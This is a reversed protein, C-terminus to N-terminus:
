SVQMKHKSNFRKIREMITTKFFDTRSLEEFDGDDVEFYHIYQAYGGDRSRKLHSEAEDNHATIENKRSYLWIARSPIDDIVDLFGVVKKTTM